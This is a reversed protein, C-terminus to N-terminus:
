LLLFIKVVNTAFARTKDFEVAISDWAARASLSEVTDLGKRLKIPLIM